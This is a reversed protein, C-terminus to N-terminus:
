ILFSFLSLMHEVKRALFFLICYIEKFFLYLFMKSILLYYLFYHCLNACRFKCTTRDVCSFLAEQLEQLDFQWVVVVKNGITLVWAHVCLPSYLIPFVVAYYNCWMCYVGNLILVITATQLSIIIRPEAIVDLFWVWDLGCGELAFQKCAVQLLFVM